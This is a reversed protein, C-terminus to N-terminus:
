GEGAPPTGDAMEINRALRWRLMPLGPASCHHTAAQLEAVMRACRPLAWPRAGIQQLMTPGSLREFIIGQQGDLEVVDGTAPAALGAAHAFRTAEAEERVPEAPFGQHFLKLVHADRWAYIDATGGFGIREGKAM